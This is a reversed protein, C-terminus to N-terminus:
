GHKAVLVQGAQLLIVRQGVSTLIGTWRSPLILCRSSDFIMKKATM